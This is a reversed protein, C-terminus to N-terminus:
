QAARFRQIWGELPGTWDAAPPVVIPVRRGGNRELVEFEDRSPLDAINALSPVFEFYADAELGAMQLHFANIMRALDGKRAYGHVLGSLAVTNDIFHNVQRGRVKEPFTYYVSIAALVELQAIYTKLPEDDESRAFTATVSDPPVASGYQLHGQSCSSVLSPGFAPHMPDCHPDYLTIGLRYIFRRRFDSACESERPRRKRPRFMADTYILLPRVDPPAVAVRRAPLNPLLAEYFDHAHRLEKTFSHDVDHFERQVLVLTAARGVRGPAAELLFSLKGRLSSAVWPTMKGEKRAARWMSLCTEVRAATPRFVVSPVEAGVEALDVIVGLATNSSDMPQRKSPEIAPASIFPRVEDFALGDGVHMHLEYVLDQGTGGAGVPDVIMYDDFFHDVPVAGLCRAATM